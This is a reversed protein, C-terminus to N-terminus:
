LAPAWVALADPPCPIVGIAVGSVIVPTGGSTMARKARLKLSPAQHWDSTTRSRSLDAVQFRRIGVRELGARGDGHREHATIIRNSSRARDGVAIAIVDVSEAM